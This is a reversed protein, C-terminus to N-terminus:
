PKKDFNLQASLGAIVGWEGERQVLGKAGLMEFSFKSFNYTVGVRAASRDETGLPIQHRPSTFGNIEGALQIKKNLNWLAGFGYILADNQDNIQRPASMIVLGLDSFVLLAKIQKAALISMTIDTTNNGIGREQNTNPLKTEVRFGLAPRHSKEPLVRAVTALSFDGADRAVTKSNSKLVQKVAGRIQFSVNEALGFDFRLTGYRYLDGRTRTLPAQWNQRLEFGAHLWVGRKPPLRLTSIQLALPTPPFSPVSSSDNRRADNIPQWHSTMRSSNKKLGIHSKANFLNRASHCAKKNTIEGAGALHSVMGVLCLLEIKWHGRM